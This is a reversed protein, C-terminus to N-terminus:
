RIEGKSIAELAEKIQDESLMALASALEQSLAPQRRERPAPGPFARRNAEHWGDDIARRVEWCHGIMDTIWDLMELPEPQGPVALAQHYIDAWADKIRKCEAETMSANMTSKWQIM